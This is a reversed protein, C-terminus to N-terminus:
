IHQSSGEEISVLRWGQERWVAMEQGLGFLALDRDVYSAAWWSRHLILTDKLKDSSEYPMNFTM